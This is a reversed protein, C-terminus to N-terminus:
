NGSPVANKLLALYYDSKGRDNLKEKYVMALKYMLPAAAPDKPYRQIAAQYANAGDQWKGQMFYIGAVMGAAKIAIAKDGSNAILGNGSGIAADIAQMVEGPRNNKQYLAAMLVQTEIAELTKPYSQGVVAYERLADDTKGNHEYCKAIGIQARACAAPDRSYKDKFTQFTRKAQEIDGTVGYLSGLGMVAEPYIDSQQYKATLKALFVIAKDIQQTERALQAAMMLEYPAAVGDPYKDALKNIRLLAEDPKGLAVWAKALYPLFL